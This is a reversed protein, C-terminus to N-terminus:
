EEQDQHVEQLHVEQPFEEEEEAAVAAAEAVEQVVEM